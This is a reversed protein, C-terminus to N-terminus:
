NRKNNINQYFAPFVTNINKKNSYIGVTVGKYKGYKEINHLVGRLTREKSKTSEAGHKYIHKGANKITRATWNKPFWAQSIGSRRNPRIHDPVNGLKVNNSETKIINYRVGRKNCEKMGDHGHGGGRLQWKNDKFKYDGINSHNLRNKTIVAKTQKKSLKKLLKLICM